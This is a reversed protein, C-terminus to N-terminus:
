STTEAKSESIAIGGPQRIMCINRHIGFGQYPGAYESLDIDIVDVDQFGFKLYMARGRMQTVLWIPVEDAGLTQLGYRFLASGIGKRQFLPLVM